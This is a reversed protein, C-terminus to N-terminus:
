LVEIRVTQRNKNIENLKKNFAENHMLDLAGKSSPVAVKISSVNFLEEFDSYAVVAIGGNRAIDILNMLQNPKVKYGTNGKTEIAFGKGDAFGIIDPRGGKGYMNGQTVMYYFGNKDLYKKVLNVVQSEAM